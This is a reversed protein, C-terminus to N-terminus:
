LRDRLRALRCALGYGCAASLRWGSLESGMGAHGARRAARHLRKQLWTRAELNWMVRQDPPLEMWVLIATGAISVALMLLQSPLSSGQETDM